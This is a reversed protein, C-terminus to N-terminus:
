HTASRVCRFGLDNNRYEPRLADRHATTFAGPQFSSWGGGRDVRFVGTAPGSPNASPTAAYDGMWDGTWEWVNGAMDLAGFPSAGHAFSGVPATVPYGDDGYYLARWRYHAREAFM